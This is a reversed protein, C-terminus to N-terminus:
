TNQLMSIHEDYWDLSFIHYIIYKDITFSLSTARM